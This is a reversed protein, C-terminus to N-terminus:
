DMALTINAIDLVVHPGAEVLILHVVALQVTTSGFDPLTVTFNEGPPKPPTQIQASYPGQFLVSGLQESPPSCPSSSGCNLMAIVIAVDDSPTLSEPKDVEVTTTSRSVVLSGTAPAGISISQACVAAVHMASVLLFNFAKM